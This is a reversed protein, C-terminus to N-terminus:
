APLPYLRELKEPRPPPHREVREKARDLWNFLFRAPSKRRKGNPHEQLWASAKDIESPLDLATYEPNDALRQVWEPLPTKLGWAMGTAEMLDILALRTERVFDDEQPGFLDPEPETNEPFTPSLHTASINKKVGMGGLDRYPLGVPSYYKRVEINGVNHNGGSNGEGIVVNTYATIVNDTMTDSVADETVVKAIDGTVVKAIHFAAPVTIGVNHDVNETVVKAIAPQKAASLSAPITPEYSTRRWGQGAGNGHRNSPETALYGLRLAKRLARNVTERRLELREAMKGQSWREGAIQPILGLVAREATTFGDSKTVLDLWRVAPGSM